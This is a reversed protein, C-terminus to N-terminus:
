LHFTRDETYGGTLIATLFCIFVFIITATAM